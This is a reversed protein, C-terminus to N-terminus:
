TKNWKSNCLIWFLYIVVYCWSVDYIRVYIKFNNTVSSNKIQCLSCTDLIKIVVCKKICVPIHQVKKKVIQQWWLFFFFFLYVVLLCILCKIVFVCMEFVLLIENHSTRWSIKWAHVTSTNNEMCRCLGSMFFQFTLHITIYVTGYLPWPM